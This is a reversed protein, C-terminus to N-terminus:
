RAPTYPNGNKKEFKHSTTGRSDLYQISLIQDTKDRRQLPVIGVLHFCTFM